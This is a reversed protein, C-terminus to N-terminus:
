RHKPKAIGVLMLFSIFYGSIDIQWWKEGCYVRDPFKHHNNHWGEGLFLLGFIFSNTSKDNTSHDQHGYTHIVINVICNYFFANICPYLYGWTYINFIKKYAELSFHWQLWEEKPLFYYYGFAFIFFTLLYPAFYPHRNYFALDKKKLLDQVLEPRPALSENRYPWWFGAEFWSKTHPSHIDLETDSHLHHHRHVTAWWIPDNQFLAASFFGFLVEWFRHMKFARHSLFRHLFISTLLFVPFCM